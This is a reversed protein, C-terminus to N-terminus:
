CQPFFFIQAVHEHREKDIVDQDLFWTNLFDSYYWGIHKEPLTLDLQM